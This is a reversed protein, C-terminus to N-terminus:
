LDYLEEIEQKTEKPLTAISSMDCFYHAKDGMKINDWDVLIIKQDPDDTYIEQLVGGRIELIIM